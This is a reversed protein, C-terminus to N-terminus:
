TKSTMHIQETPSQYGIRSIHTEHKSAPRLFIHAIFTAFAAASFMQFSRAGGFYRYLQGGILSGISFGLGDDMGAVIGQITASTGPPAIASAYAVICTYCLAYTCGQMLLEVAVLWWPNPIISILGLRVSYTFFCLSLCHVYGLRNLIRGSILFFIIEGGLCEAAVVCGEILKISGMYGTEAAVEELHWFM